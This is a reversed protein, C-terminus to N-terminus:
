HPSHPVAIPLGAGTWEIMGGTMTYATFGGAALQEAAAASRRGSRCVAIVPRSKDLLGASGHIDALPIHRAGSITGDALEAAERVDVIQADHLRGFVQRATLENM